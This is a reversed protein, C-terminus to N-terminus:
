VKTSKSSWAKQKVVIKGREEYEKKSIMEGLQSNAAAYVTAGSFASILRRPRAIVEVPARVDTGPNSRVHRKWSDTIDAKLRDPFGPFMTTGGALLISKYLGLRLTADCGRIAEFVLDGLSDTSFDVLKPNFM